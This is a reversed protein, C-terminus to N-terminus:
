GDAPEAGITSKARFQWPRFGLAVRARRMALMTRFLPMLAIPKLRQWLRALIALRALNRSPLALMRELVAREQPTRAGMDLVLTRDIPYSQLALRCSNFRWRDCFLAAYWPPFAPDAALRRPVIDLMHKTQALELATRRSVSDPFVAWAAVLTPEFFFGFKLAIKRAVYGDAYSGLREDLGGAWLVCERRFIASGTLIWNDSERLLRKVEAAEIRSARMAPRVAPRVAFARDSLGDVLLAEGCFLGLDPNAQLRALARDFFGPLVWDDAAAFYIYRGRAM